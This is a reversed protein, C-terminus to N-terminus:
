NVLYYNCSSEFAINMLQADVLNNPRNIKVTVGKKDYIYREIVLLMQTDQLRTQKCIEVAQEKTIM